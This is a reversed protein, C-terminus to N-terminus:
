ASGPLHAARIARLVEHACSPIPTGPGFIGKAGAQFLFDYDQAPIVGGVFVVIDSGGQEKLAAVLADQALQEALDVDRVVRVLGAVVRPFELRWVAEITRRTEDDM